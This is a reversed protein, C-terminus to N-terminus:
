LISITGINIDKINLISIGLIEESWFLLDQWLMQIHVFALLILLNKGFLEQSAM